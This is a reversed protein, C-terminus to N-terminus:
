RWKSVQWIVVTRSERGGERQSGRSWVDKSGHDGSREVSVRSGIWIFHYTASHRWQQGRKFGQRWRATFFLVFYKNLILIKQILVDVKDHLQREEATILPRSNDLPRMIWLPEIVACPEEFGEATRSMCRGVDLKSVVNVWHYLTRLYLIYIFSLKTQPTKSSIFSNSM